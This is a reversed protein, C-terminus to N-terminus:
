QGPQSKTNMRVNLSCDCNPHAPPADDGSDFDEDMDIWGDLVNPVCIAECATGDPEWAKENFGLDVGLQKRGANYAANMETQAIMAARTANFDAYTEQVADVLGDFDAGSDYADALANRLRQVTTPDITGTLKTLSHDSLYDQVVDEAIEGGMSTEEAASDYGATIAASLAKSYDFSMGGGVSVPLPDPIIQAAKEKGDAERLKPKIDKLLRSKQYKFFRQLVRTAATRIPKLAGAHRPHKLGGSPPADIETLETLAESLDAAAELVEDEDREVLSPDVLWHMEKAYTDVLAISGHEFTHGMGGMGAIQDVLHGILPHHSVVLVDAYYGMMAELHRWAEEPKVDPELMPTRQIHAGLAEAMIEATQLARQFPSTIVTDVRGVIRKLWAAMEEAQRRGDATLGRDADDRAGPVPRCHRMLFINV